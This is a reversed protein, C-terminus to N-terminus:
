KVETPINKDDLDEGLGLQDYANYGWAWLTGDSKIAITFYKGCSVSMWSGTIQTPRNKNTTTGDGLQGYYNNGWLWLEGNAKIAATHNFGASVSSWDTSNTDEQTFSSNSDNSADGLEGSDNIGVSWLTGDIKIAVSHNAGASITAWDTAKTDEQTPQRREKYKANGIQSYKNNGWGWLTNDTKLAISYEKGASVRSWESSQSYEQAPEDQEVIGQNGLQGDSNKGWSWLTGDAKIAASHNYGVSIDIFKENENGIFANKGVSLMTSNEQILTSTLTGASFSQTNQSNAIPLPISHSTDNGTLLQKYSNNGWVYLDGDISQAMSHTEGVEVKKWFKEKCLFEQSFDSSLSNGMMDKVSSDIELTYSQTKILSVLPKVYLHNDIASLELEISKKSDTRKLTVNTSTLSDIDIFSSFEINIYSSQAINKAPTTSLLSMKSSSIVSPVTSIDQEGYGRDSCATLFVLGVLLTILYKM